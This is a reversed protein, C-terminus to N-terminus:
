SVSPLESVSAMHLTAAPAQPESSAAGGDWVMAPSDIAAALAVTQWVYCTCCGHRRLAREHRSVADALLLHRSGISTSHDGHRLGALLVQALMRHKAASLYPQSGCATAVVAIHSQWCTAYESTVCTLAASFITYPVPPRLQDRVRPLFLFM